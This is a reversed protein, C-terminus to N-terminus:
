SKEGHGGKTEANSLPAPAEETRNEAPGSEVFATWAFQGADHLADEVTVLTHQARTLASRILFPIEKEPEAEMQIRGLEGRIAMAQVHLKAIRKFLLQAREGKM